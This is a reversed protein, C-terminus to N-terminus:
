YEKSWASIGTGKRGVAAKSVRPQKRMGAVLCSYAIFLSSWIRVCEVFLGSIRFGFNCLWTNWPAYFQAWVIFTLTSYGKFIYESYIQFSSFRLHIRLTDNSIFVGFSEFIYLTILPMWCRWSLGNLVTNDYQGGKQWWRHKCLDKMYSQLICQWELLHYTDNISLVGLYYTHMFELFLNEERM